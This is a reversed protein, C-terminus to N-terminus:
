SGKRFKRFSFLNETKGVPYLWHWPIGGGCLSNETTTWHEKRHNSCQVGIIKLIVVAKYQKHGIRSGWETEFNYKDHDNNYDQQLEQFGLKPCVCVELGSNQSNRALFSYAETLQQFNFSGHLVYVIRPTYICERTSTHQGPGLFWCIMIIKQSRSLLTIVICTFVWINHAISLKDQKKVIHDVIAKRAIRRVPREKQLKSFIKLM